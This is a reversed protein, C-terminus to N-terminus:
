VEVYRERTIKLATMVQSRVLLDGDMLADTLPKVARPDGIKGLTLAASKRVVMNENKLANIVPEVAGTSGIEGLTIIAKSQVHHDRNKTMRILPLVARTDRLLGLTGIILMLIDKDTERKMAHILPEVSERKKIKALVEVALWRILPEKDNLADIFPTLVPKGTKKLIDILIGRFKYYGLDFSKLTDILADVTERDGVNGSDFMIRIRENRSKKALYGSLREKEGM